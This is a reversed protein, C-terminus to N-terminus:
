EINWGKSMFKALKRHNNNPELYTVFSREASNCIKTYNKKIYDWWEENLVINNEQLAYLCASDASNSKEIVEEDTTYRIWPSLFRYPVNKLLPDLIKGIGDSDYYVSLYAEVVKGSINKILTSQKLIDNLYKAIMDSKGLDIEYELVIPWALTAMRIVIDKYSITLSKKEKALSIIAMFWFYKYSTAKKEFINDLKKIDIPAKAKSVDKDEPTEAECDIEIYPYASPVGVYVHEIESEDITKTYGRQSNITEGDETDMEEIASFDRFMSHTSYMDKCGNPVILKCNSKNFGNFCDKNIEIENPNEVNIILKSLKSCGNFINTELTKISEPLSISQLRSDEFAFYSIELVDDPVDYHKTRKNSPYIILRTEYHDFLIGDLDDFDMNQTAVHMECNFASAGISDVNSPIEIGTLKTGRFADYGIDELEDNLTIRTIGCCGSFASNGITKLSEPFSVSVIKENNEFAEDKISIVGEPIQLTESGDEDCGVVETGNDDYMLCRSGEIATIYKFGGFREDGKYSALADFPVRLVCDELRFAKFTNKDILIDDPTEKKITITKLNQCGMFLLDGLELIEENLVIEATSNFEFARSKIKTIFNPIEISDYNDNNPYSLLIEKEPNYSVGNKDYFLNKKESQNDNEDDVAKEIDETEEVLVGKYDVTISYLTNPSTTYCGNEGYCFDLDFSLTGDPSLAEFEACLTDRGFYSKRIPQKDVKIRYGLQKFVVWWEDFSLNWSFGKSKWSPPFDHEDYTWYLSTFIGEGEHDWFDVKEVTITRSPEKGSRRVELGMEKADKWTTKGLTIGFLPFFDKIASSFVEIADPLKEIVEVEDYVDQILEMDETGESMDVYRPRGTGKFSGRNPEEEDEVDHGLFHYKWHRRADPLGFRSYMGVNDLIVCEQKNETIRLGRGVQQLYKVLSRTPRALQIFEIDPCDFGESFIDVNVIIDLEGKRFKKVYDKRETDTTNNDICVVRYGAEKYEKCINRAHVINIAYIIGKKGEALALYSKLLQARIKGIDMKEEMSSEKYEGFKDLEIDDITNLIDSDSRLSFYKYPALYGQKIFDKIPMSMVLKDFLDTFSQHNMRWPTATVGLKKSGPYLDWLKKYTTALAHHAEDIIIFQVNLKKADNLNKPHTLTQISAVHVPFKKENLKKTRTIEKISSVHVFQDEERKKTSGGIVNHAVHYKKLSEDIQDILETRHAIILIKVAEKKRLSYQNIDRIISTFLRTKGTGTPMQFMVNDIEDWSEFIERKAKQQYTRLTSDEKCIDSYSEITLSRKLAVKVNQKVKVLPKAIISPVKKSPIKGKISDRAEAIHKVIKQKKYVLKSKVYNIWFALNKGSSIRKRIRLDEEHTIYGGRKVFADVVSDVEAISNIPEMSYIDIKKKRM